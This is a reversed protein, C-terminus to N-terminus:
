KEKFILKKGDELTIILKEDTYEIKKAKLLDGLYEREKDMADKPGEMTTVMMQPSITLADGDLKYTTVYGNVGSEGVLKGDFFKITIAHNLLSGELVFTKGAMKEDLISKVKEVFAMEKGSGSIILLRGEEAKIEVAEELNKIFDRDQKELDEFALESMRGMKGTTGVLDISIKNGEIKYPAYYDSVGTKGYLTDEGFTIDVVSGDVTEELHYTKGLVMTGTDPGDKKKMGTCGVLFVASLLFLILKKM